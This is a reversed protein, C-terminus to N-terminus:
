IRPVCPLCSIGAQLPSIANQGPVAQAQGADGEGQGGDVAKEAQIRGAAEALRDVARCEGGADGSPPNLTAAVLGRAMVALFPNAVQQEPRRPAAGRKEALEERRERLQERFERQKRKAQDRESEVDGDDAGQATGAHTPRLLDTPRPLLRICSM